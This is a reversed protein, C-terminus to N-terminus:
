SRGALILRNQVLHAARQLACGNRALKRAIARGIDPTAGIVLATEVGDNM